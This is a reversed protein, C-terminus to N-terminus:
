IYCNSVERAITGIFRGINLLIDIITPSLIISIVIVLIYITNILCKKLGLKLM